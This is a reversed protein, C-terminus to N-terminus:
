KTGCYKETTEISDIYVSSGKMLIYESAGQYNKEGWDYAFGRKTWPYGEMSPFSKVAQQDIWTKHISDVNKPWTVDCEADFIEPDLCPRFLRRPEVWITVFKGKNGDYPLGM